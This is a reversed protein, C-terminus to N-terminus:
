PVKRPSHESCLLCSQHLQDINITNGVKRMDLLNLYKLAYEEWSINKKRYQSLLEKTPAFDLKHQYAMAGVEKAFFALDEGKAFGSLQSKNNVRTDVLEIVENKKLLEFFSQASKKTFGITYLRIM